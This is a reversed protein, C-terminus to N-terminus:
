SFGYHLQDWILVFPLVRKNIPCCTSKGKRGGCVGKWMNLAARQGIVAQGTKDAIWFSLRNFNISTKEQQEKDEVPFMHM